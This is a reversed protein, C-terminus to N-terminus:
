QYITYRFIKALMFKSLDGVFVGPFFKMVLDCDIVMGVIERTFHCDQTATVFHSNITPRKGFPLMCVLKSCEGIELVGWTTGLRGSQALELKYCSRRQRLGSGGSGPCLLPVWFPVM